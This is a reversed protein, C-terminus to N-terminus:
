LRLEGLQQSLENIRKSLKELEKRSREAEKRKIAGIQRSAQTSLIDKIGRARNYLIQGIKNKETTSIRIKRQTVTTTTENPATKDSM